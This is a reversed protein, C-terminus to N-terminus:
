FFNIAEPTFKEPHAERYDLWCAYFTAGEARARDESYNELRTTVLTLSSKKNRM